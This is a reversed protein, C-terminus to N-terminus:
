TLLQYFYTLHILFGYLQWELIISLLEILNPAFLYKYLFCKSSIVVLYLLNFNLVGSMIKNMATIRDIVARHLREGWEKEVM